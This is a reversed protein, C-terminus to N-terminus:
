APYKGMPRLRSRIKVSRRWTGNLSSTQGAKRRSLATRTKLSQAVCGPRRERSFTGSMVSDDCRRGGGTPRWNRGGYLPRTREKENSARHSARPRERKTRETHEERERERGP